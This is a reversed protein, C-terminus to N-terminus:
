ADVIRGWKDKVIPKPTFISWTAARDCDTAILDCSSGHPTNRRWGKFQYDVYWGPQMHDGTVKAGVIAESLAEDFTMSDPKAM